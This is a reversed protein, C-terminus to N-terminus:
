ILLILYKLGNLKRYNKKKYKMMGVSKLVYDIRENKEDDTIDYMNLQLKLNDYVTRQQLLLYNQFIYGIKENRIRDIMRSSYKKIIKGDIEITGSDFSDLGGIVNMLTTKGSGSEGFITVLGTNPFELTMDNIVHIENSKHRYFYKNLNTIKIM